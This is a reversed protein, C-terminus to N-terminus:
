NAISDKVCQFSPNGHQSKVDDTKNEDAVFGEEEYEGDDDDEPALLSDEEEENDSLPTDQAYTVEKTVARFNYPTETKVKKSPTEAYDSDEEQIADVKVKRGRKGTTVKTPTVTSPTGLVAARDLTSRVRKRGPKFDGTSGGPTTATALASKRPTRVKKPQTTPGHYLLGALKNPSSKEAVVKEERKIQEAHSKRRTGKEPKSPVRRGATERAIRIKGIHQKVGEATLFPEVEKAIDEWPLPVGLRTCVADVSLLVLQDVDATYLTLAPLYSLKTHPM